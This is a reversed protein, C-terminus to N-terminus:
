RRHAKRKGRGAEEEFRVQARADAEKIQEQTMYVRDLLTHTVDRSLKCQGALEETIKTISYIMASIERLHELQNNLEHARNKLDRIQFFVEGKRSFDVGQLDHPYRKTWDDRMSKLADNAEKLSVKVGYMDFEVM